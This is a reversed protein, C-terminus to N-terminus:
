KGERICTILQRLTKINELAKPSIVLDFVTDNLSHNAGGEAKCSSLITRILHSVEHQHSGSIRITTQENM